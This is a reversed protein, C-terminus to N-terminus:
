ALAANLWAQPDDLPAAPPPEVDEAPQDEPAIEYSMEPMPKWGGSSDGSREKLGFALCIDHVIFPASKVSEQGTMYLDLFHTKEAPRLWATDESYHVVFAEEGEPLCTVKVEGIAVTETAANAYMGRAKLDKTKPASQCGVLALAVVLPILLKKM